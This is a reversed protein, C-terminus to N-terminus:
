IQDFTMVLSLESFMNAQSCFVAVIVLRHKVSLNPTVISLQSQGLNNM